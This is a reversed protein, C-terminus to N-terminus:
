PFSRRKLIELAKYELEVVTTYDLAADRVKLSPCLHGLHNPWQLLVSANKYYERQKACSFYKVHGVPKVNLFFRYLGECRRQLNIVM